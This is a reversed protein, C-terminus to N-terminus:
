WTRFAPSCWLSSVSGRTAMHEITQSDCKGNEHRHSDFRTPRVNDDVALVLAELCIEATEFAWEDM